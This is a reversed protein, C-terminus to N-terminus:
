VHRVSNNHWAYMNKLCTDYELRPGLSWYGMKDFELLRGAYLVVESLITESFYKKNELKLGEWWNYRSNNIMWEYVDWPMGFMAGAPIMQPFEQDYDSIIKSINWHKRYVPFIRHSFGSGRQICGDIRTDLDSGFLIKFDSFGKEFTNEKPKLSTGWSMGKSHAIHVWDYRKGSSILSGIAACIKDTESMGNSHKYFDPDSEVVEYTQPIIDRVADPCERSTSIIVSGQWNNRLFDLYMRARHWCGSPAWLSFLLIKKM